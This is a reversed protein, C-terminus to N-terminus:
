GYFFTCESITRQRGLGRAYSLQLRVVLMKSQQSPRHVDFIRKFSLERHGGQPEINILLLFDASVGSATPKYTQVAM